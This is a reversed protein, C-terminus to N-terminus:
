GPNTEVILIRLRQAAAMGKHAQRWCAEAVRQHINVADDASTFSVVGQAWAPHADTPFPNDVVFGRERGRYIIAQNILEPEPLLGIQIGLPAQEMQTALREVESLAAARAEARSREALPLGACVGEHLLRRLATESLIATINPRRQELVLRRQALVLQAQEILSRAQAPSPALNAAEAWLARLVAHFGDSVLAFCLAGGLQLQSDAEEEIHRLRELVSSVRSFYDVGIGLLALPSVQLMEALRRVTDLKIVEGKEYRYLAARSIGLRAAIEDAKLGSELRYTRLQQGIEDFRM